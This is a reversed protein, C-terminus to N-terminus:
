PDLGEQSQDRVYDDMRLAQRKESITPRDFHRRENGCMHCSCMKLHDAAKGPIMHPYVKAARKKMRNNDSRRQARRRDNKEM